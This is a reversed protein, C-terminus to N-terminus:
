CVGLDTRLRDVYFFVTINNGFRLDSSGLECRCHVLVERPPRSYFLRGFCSQPPYRKRVLFTLLKKCVLQQASYEANCFFFFFFFFFVLYVPSLLLIPSYYYFPSRPLSIYDFLYPLSPSFPFCPFHSHILSRSLRIFTVFPINQNGVRDLYNTPVPNEKHQTRTLHARDLRECTIIIERMSDHHLPM